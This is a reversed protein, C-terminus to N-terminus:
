QEGKLANVYDNVAPTAVAGATFLPFGKTMVHERLKPTIRMVSMTKPESWEIPEIKHNGPNAHWVDQHLNPTIFPENRRMNEPLADHRIPYSGLRPDDLPTVKYKTPQSPEYVHQEVRAGFKKGLDNATNPLIKDYFWKWDHGPWREEQVNGPTWSIADYNKEVAENLMKKLALGGYEEPKKFPADPVVNEFPELANRASLEKDRAAKVEPHAEIGGYVDLGRKNYMDEYDKFGLDRAAKQRAEPIAKTSEIWADQLQRWNELGKTDLYTGEHGQGHWDSQIEESHLSKGVGTIDRDNMRNHFLVNPEDWHGGKHGPFEFPPNNFTTLQERYNTGGPMQYEPYKPNNQVNPYLWHPDNSRIVEGLRPPMPLSNFADERSLKGPHPEILPEGLWELESKKVGPQNRIYRAWEEATASPMKAGQLAREVGSYMPAATERGLMKAAGLAGMTAKAALGPVFTAADVAMQPIFDQPRMEGPGVKGPPTNQDINPPQYQYTLYDPALAKLLFAATDQPAYPNAKPLLEDM